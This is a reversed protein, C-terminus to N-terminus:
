PRKVLGPESGMTQGRQTKDESRYKLTHVAARSGALAEEVGECGLLLSFERLVQLFDCALDSTQKFLSWILYFAPRVPAAIESIARVDGRGKSRSLNKKKKLGLSGLAGILMLSWSWDFDWLHLRHGGTGKVGVQERVAWLEWLKIKAKYYVAHHSYNIQYSYGCKESPCEEWQGWFLPNRLCKPFCVVSRFSYRQKNGRLTERMSIYNGSVLTWLLRGRLLTGCVLWCLGFGSCRLIYAM